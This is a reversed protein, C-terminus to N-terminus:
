NERGEIQPAVVDDHRSLEFKRDVGEFSVAGLNWCLFSVNIMFGKVNGPLSSRHKCIDMGFFRIKM